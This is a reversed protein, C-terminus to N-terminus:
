GNNLAGNSRDYLPQGFRSAGVSIQQAGSCNRLESRRKTRFSPVHKSNDITTRKLSFGSVAQQAAGGSPRSDVHKSYDSLASTGISQGAKSIGRHAHPMVGYSQRVNIEQNQGVPKM